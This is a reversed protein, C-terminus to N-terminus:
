KTNVVQITVQIETSFDNAVGVYITHPSPLSKAAFYCSLVDKQDTAVPTGTDADSVHCSITKDNSKVSVSSDGSPLEIQRSELHHPKVSLVYTMDYAMASAAFCIVSVGFLSAIKMKIDKNFNRQNQPLWCGNSPPNIRYGEAEM